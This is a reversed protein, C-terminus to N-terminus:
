SHRDPNRYEFRIQAVKRADIRECRGAAIAAACLKNHENAIKQDVGAGQEANHEQILRWVHDWKKPKRRSRHGSLRIAHGLEEVIEADLRDAGGTEIFQDLQVLVWRVRDAADIESVGDTSGSVLSVAAPTPVPPVRDLRVRLAHLSAETPRRDLHKQTLYGRLDEAENWFNSRDTM